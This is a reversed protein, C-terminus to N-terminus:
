FIKQDKFYLNKITKYKYLISDDFEMCFTQNEKRINKFPGINIIFEYKKTKDFQIPVEITRSLKLTKTSDYFEIDYGPDTYVRKAIDEHVNTPLLQLYDM